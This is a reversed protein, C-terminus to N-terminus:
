RVTLGLDNTLFDHWFDILEGLFGSVRYTKGASDTVTLHPIHFANSQFVAPDFGGTVVSTMISKIQCHKAGNAIARAVAQLPCRDEIFKRFHCLDAKTLGWQAHLDSRSRISEWVWDTLHCATLIANLAHRVNLNQSASLDSREDLLKSFFAEPTAIDFAPIKPPSM